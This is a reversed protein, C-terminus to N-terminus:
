NRKDPQHLADIGELQNGNHGLGGAAYLIAGGIAGGMIAATAVRAEQSASLRRPSVLTFFPRDPVAVLIEGSHLLAIHSAQM